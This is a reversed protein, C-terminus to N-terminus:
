APVARPALRLTVGEMGIEKFYAAPGDILQDVFASTSMVTWAVIDHSAALALRVSVVDAPTLSVARVVHQYTGDAHATIFILYMDNM